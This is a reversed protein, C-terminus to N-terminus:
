SQLIFRGLKVFNKCFYPFNVRMSYMNKVFIEHFYHNEDFLQDFSIKKPSLLNMKGCLKSFRSIGEWAFQKEDHLQLTREYKYLFNNSPIKKSFFNHCYYKPILINRACLWVSHQFVCLKFKWMTFFMKQGGLLQFFFGHFCKVVYCM